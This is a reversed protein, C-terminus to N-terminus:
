QTEETLAAPLLAVILDALFRALRDSGAIAQTKLRVMDKVSSPRRWIVGTLAGLKGALSTQEMLGFLDVPLAQDVPDSIVRIALSRPGAERCADAVAWSEMEVALAHHTQGLARKEAPAAVAKDVTVIRGVHVGAAGLLAAPVGQLDVAIEGGAHSTLSDAVVLDHLALQPQLGGAFGASIIWAPRHGLRLAEVARRAAAVGVGAEISVVSRGALTGQRATFGQGHITSVGDLLDEFGGQEIGLAFIVGVQCVAASAIPGPSM